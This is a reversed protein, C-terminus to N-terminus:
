TRASEIWLDWGEPTNVDQVRVPLKKLGVRLLPGTPSKAESIFGTRTFLSALEPSLLVLKIQEVRILQISM